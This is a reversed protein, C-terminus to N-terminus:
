FLKRVVWPLCAYVLRWVLSIWLLVGAWWFRVSWSGKVVVPSERAFRFHRTPKHSMAITKM